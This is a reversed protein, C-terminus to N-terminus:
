GSTVPRAAAAPLLPPMPCGLLEAVVRLLEGEEVTIRGDAGICAASAELVRKKIKPAAAALRHVAEDFTKLTAASRPLLKLESQIAALRVAGLRFAREAQADDRHGVYALTSLLANCDGAVADIWRFKVRAPPRREFRQGLQDLVMRELAYEFVSIKQDAEVLRRVVQRLSGYQDPSLRALAPMAMEVLPLRAEAPLGGLLPAIRQLEEYVRSSSRALIALQDARTQSDGALVLGCVAAAAGLPEHVEEVLRQPLSAVLAAAYAVHETQPTGVSAVATEPRFGMAAAAAQAPRPGAGLDSATRQAHTVKPFQGDFAPDIRKIREPLPPHTSLFGFLNQGLVNGFFLHSAEEAAAREVRSGAVLGGIKKLAGAIGQPNRTFQVASADALFERQRSVASKILRGFFVGLYGIVLLAAGLALVAVVGGGDKRSRRRRTHGLSRLLTYGILAILLIGHLLGILRINLRMDGNLIHSFEHAIVGQLEDRNLTEIAGRTVGIVASSPSWGAAFANIGQEDLVFVSPAPVGSAIAMEEVVNVLVREDLDRTAPDVPRGGLMQAVVEGGSGLQVIKFLSGAAIVFLTAGAVALFLIPNWLHPPRAGFVLAVVPYVAAVILAIALCFYVVLLTTKRRAADQHAFFDM